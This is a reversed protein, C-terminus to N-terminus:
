AGHLYRRRYAPYQAAPDRLVGGHCVAMRQPRLEAVVAGSRVAQAMDPTFLAAPRGLRGPVFATFLDGAILLSEAEAFFATHGPSHGPTHFFTLGAPREGPELARLLGAPLAAAAPASAARAGFGRLLDAYRREGRLFPLEMPHALVPVPHATLVAPLAGVHDSHGHTLLVQRLPRGTAAIAGLITGAMGPLGADILTLGGEAEVLFTHVPFPLSPGLSWVKAGIRRM